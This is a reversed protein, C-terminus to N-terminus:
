DFFYLSHFLPSGITSRRYCGNFHTVGNVAALIVEKEKKSGGTKAGRKGAGKAPTGKTTEVARAAGGASGTRSAQRTRPKRREVLVDAKFIRHHPIRHRPGFSRMDTYSLSPRTVILVRGGALPAFRPTRHYSTFHHTHPTMTESDYHFAAPLDPLRDINSNGYMGGETYTIYDAASELIAHLASNRQTIKAEDQLPSLLLQLVRRELLEETLDKLIIPRRANTDKSLKTKCINSMSCSNAETVTISKWWAANFADTERFRDYFYQLRQHFQSDGKADTPSIKGDVFWFPSDIFKTFIYQYLMTAALVPGMHEQTAPPLLAHITNWDEQVCYGDLSEIIAQKDTQPLDSLSDCRTWSYAWDQIASELFEFNEHVLDPICRRLSPNLKMANCHRLVDHYEERTIFFSDCGYVRESRPTESEDQSSVPDTKPEDPEESRRATVM